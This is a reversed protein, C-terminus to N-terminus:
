HTTGSHRIARCLASEDFLCSNLSRYVTQPRESGAVLASFWMGFLTLLMCLIAFRTM